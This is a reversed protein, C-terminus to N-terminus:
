PQKEECEVARDLRNALERMRVALKECIERGTEDEVRKSPGQHLHIVEEVMAELSGAFCVIDDETAGMPLQVYVIAPDLVAPGNCGDCTRSWEFPFFLKPPNKEFVERLTDTIKHAFGKALLELMGSRDEEFFTWTTLDIQSSTRIHLMESDGYEIMEKVKHTFWDMASSRSKVQAM